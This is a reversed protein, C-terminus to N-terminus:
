YYARKGKEIILEEALAQVLPLELILAADSEGPHYRNKIGSKSHVLANRTKYVRKAIDNGVGEKDWDIKPADTDCDDSSLSMKNNRYYEAARPNLFDIRDKINNVSLIHSVIYKLTELENGEGRDRNNHFKEKISKAVKYVKTENQFVGPKTMEERLIEVIMDKFVADFYFELVHYYSLYKFYASRSGSGELYYRVAEQDYQRRPIELTGNGRRTYGDTRRSWFGAADVVDSYLAIPNDNNHAYHFLVANTLEQFHGINNPKNSTITLSEVRTLKALIGKWEDVSSVIRSSSDDQENPFIRPPLRYCEDNRCEEIAVKILLYVSYDISAAGMSVTHSDGVIEVTETKYPRFGHFAIEYSSEGLLGIDSDSLRAKEFLPEFYKYIEEQHTSTYIIFDDSSTNADKIGRPMRHSRNYVRSCIEIFRDFIMKADLSEALPQSM